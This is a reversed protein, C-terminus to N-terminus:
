SVENDNYRCEVIAERNTNVNLAHRDTKIYLYAMQGITCATCMCCNM